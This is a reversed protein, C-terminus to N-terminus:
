RADAVHRPSPLLHAFLHILPKADRARAQDKLRAAASVPRGLRDRPPKSIAPAAVFPIATCALAVIRAPRNM